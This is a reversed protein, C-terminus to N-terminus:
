KEKGESDIIPIINQKNYIHPILDILIEGGYSVSDLFLEQFNLISKDSFQKRKVIAIGSTENSQQGQSAHYQGSVAKLGNSAIQMLNTHVSSSGVPHVREPKPGKADYFIIPPKDKNINELVEQQEDGLQDQYPMIWPADTQAEAYDSAYSIARNFLKKPDILDRVHGYRLLNGEKDVDQFGLIRVVPIYIGKWENVSLVKEFNGLIRVHKIKKDKDVYYYDWIYVM